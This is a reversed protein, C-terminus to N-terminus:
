PSVEGCLAARTLRRRVEAGEEWAGFASFAALALWWSWALAAMM